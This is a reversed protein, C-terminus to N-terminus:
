FLNENAAMVARSFGMPTESRINARDAGPSATHIRDDPYWQQLLELEPRGAFKVLVKAKSLLRRCETMVADVAARVMPHTDENPMAFGNGVWLCTNKMYNDSADIGTFQWPHFGSDPSRWYTSITSVPNEIFYPAGSAECFEAATAFLDISLSLSLSAGQGQVLACRQRGLSRM